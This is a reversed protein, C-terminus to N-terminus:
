RALELYFSILEWLKRIFFALLDAFQGGARQLCLELIDSIEYIDEPPFIGLGGSRTKNFVVEM